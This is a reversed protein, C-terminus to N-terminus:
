RSLSFSSDSRLVDDLIADRIDQRDCRSIEVPTNADHLCSERALYLQLQQLRILTSNQEIIKQHDKAFAVVPSPVYGTLIGFALVLVVILSILLLDRKRMKILFNIIKMLASVSSSSPVIM